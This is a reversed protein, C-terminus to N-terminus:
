RDSFNAKQLSIARTQSAAITIAYRCRALDFFELILPFEREQLSSLFDALIASNSDIDNALKACGLPRMM